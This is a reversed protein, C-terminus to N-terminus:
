EALTRAQRLADLGADREGTMVLAPGLSNLIRCQEARAGAGRGRTLAGGCRARGERGRGLLMLLHGEAGLMHARDAEPADGPMLSVALGLEDLADRTLGCVWLYRRIREHVAAATLPDDDPDVLALAGRALAAARETAGA